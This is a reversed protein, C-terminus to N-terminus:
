GSCPLKYWIRIHIANEEIKPKHCFWFRGHASRKRRTIWLLPKGIMVPLMFRMRSVRSTDHEDYEMGNRQKM